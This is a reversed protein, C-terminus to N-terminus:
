NNHSRWTISHRFRSIIGVPGVGFRPTIHPFRVQRLLFRLRAPLRFRLPSHKPTVPPRHSAAIAPFRFPPRSDSFERFHIFNPLLIAPLLYCARRARGPSAAPRRAPPQRRRLGSPFVGTVPPAADNLRLPACSRGSASPQYQAPPRFQRTPAM